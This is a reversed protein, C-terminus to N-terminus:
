VRNMLSRKPRWSRLLSRAFTPGRRSINRMKRWYRMGRECANRCFFLFLFPFSCFSVAVKLLDNEAKQLRMITTRWKLCVWDSSRFEYRFGACSLSFQGPTKADFGLTSQLIDLEIPKKDRITVVGGIADLVCEYDVFKGKSSGSFLVTLGLWLALLFSLRNLATTQVSMTPRLDSDSDASTTGSRTRSSCNGVNVFVFLFM